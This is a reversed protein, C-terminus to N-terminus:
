QPRSLAAALADTFRAAGAANLHYGDRFMERGWSDPLAPVLVTTGTRNGAEMLGRVGPPSFGPPILIDCRMHYSACLSQLLEFHRTAAALVEADSISPNHGENFRYLSLAYGPEARYLIFNRLNNLGAYFLSYRALFLGSIKTLDYGSNKGAQLLDGTRILYFASYEGRLTDGILQPVDLCLVIRNPRSGEALLRRIGFYWDAWSTREIVFRTPVADNRLATRLRNNDLGELLLSNGLLLISPKSDSRRVALAASYENHTRSEIRSVRLFGVRTVVEFGCLLLAITVLAAAIPRAYHGTAVREDSSSTFSPM